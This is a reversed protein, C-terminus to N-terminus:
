IVPASIGQVSSSILPGVLASIMALETSELKEAPASRFSSIDNFACCHTRRQVCGLGKWADPSQHYRDLVDANREVIRSVKLAKAFRGIGVMEAMPEQASPLPNSSASAVDNRTKEEFADTARGSVPRPMMGAAPPM